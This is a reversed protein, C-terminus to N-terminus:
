QSFELGDVRSPAPHEVSIVPRFLYRKIVEAYGGSFVLGSALGADRMERWARPLEYWPLKPRAHHAIHLNNNLFILGWVPGAEVTATRLRSDADARHEAFARLQGLAISPYVILAAYVLFPIRCVGVTWFLVFAVAAAHRLWTGIRRRDGSCILRTESIWFKAAAIAPGIIVRGALTCNTSHIARAIAGAQRLSGPRLYFSEPDRSVDTLHRGGHRHHQLHTVRYIGYPIWLSLPLSGLMRNVRPSSTPHGHITEHQLSGYWTLLFVLLPVAIFIPLDRFFWTSLAFGGYIALALGLTPIELRKRDVPAAALPVDNFSNGVITSMTIEPGLPETMGGDSALKLNVDLLLESNQSVQCSFM